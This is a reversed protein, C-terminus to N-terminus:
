RPNDIPSAQQKAARHRALRKLRRRVRKTDPHGTAQYLSLSKKWVKETQDLNGRIKYQRGLNEYQAATIEKLESADSIKLSKRYMDEAQDLNGQRRYVNGLSVHDKAMGEKSGLAQHLELANRHMEEAQNLRGRGQYVLGLNHFATAQEKKDQHAEALTLMKRLAKQAQVLDGAQYFMYGLENWGEANDPTLNVAEQYSDRAALTLGLVVTCVGGWFSHQMILRMLVSSKEPPFLCTHGLELNGTHIAGLVLLVSGTLVMPIFLYKARKEFGAFDM